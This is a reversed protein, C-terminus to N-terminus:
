ARSAFPMLLAIRSAHKLGDLAKEELQRIRERTVKYRKGIEELTLDEDDDLGFRMRIIEGLKTDLSEIAAACHEKLEREDVSQDPAADASSIGSWVEAQIELPADVEAEDVDDDMSVMEGMARRLKAVKRADLNLWRESAAEDHKSAEEIATERVQRALSDDDIALGQRELAASAKALVRLAEHVHVPVRVTRSQNAIARLISQRIWWTAYTSLRNGTEPDFREIGRILGLNGEQVLDMTAMQNGALRRAQDIVLRLNATIMKERAALAAALVPRLLERADQRRAMLQLISPWYRRMDNVTGNSADGDDVDDPDPELEEDDGNAEIPGSSPQLANFETRLAPTREIISIAAQLGKQMTRALEIEQVSTLLDIETESHYRNLLGGDDRHVVQRLMESAEDSTLESCADKSVDGGIWDEDEDVIEIGLDSAIAVIRAALDESNSRPRHRRMHGDSPPATRQMKTQEEVIGRLSSPLGVVVDQIQAHSIRGTRSGLILLSVAPTLDAERYRTFRRDVQLPEPLDITIDLEPDADFPTHASIARQALDAVAVVTPDGRPPPAADDVTWGFDDISPDPADVTAIAAERHAALEEALRDFGRRRAHSCAADGDQDVLDVTAGAEILLQCIQVHGRSAALMLATRGRPDTADLDRKSRLHFRVAQESGGLVALRFVQDIVAHGNGCGGGFPTGKGLGGQSMWRIMRPFARTPFIALPYRQSLPWPDVIPEAYAPDGKV